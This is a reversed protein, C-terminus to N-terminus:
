IRRPTVRPTGKTATASRATNSTCTRARNGSRRPGSTPVRRACPGTTGVWWSALLVAVAGLSLLRPDNKRPRWPACLPREGTFDYLFLIVDWMEEEKLFKEWAPMATDWPAGEEPM